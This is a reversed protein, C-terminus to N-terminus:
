PVGYILSYIFKHTYARSHTSHESKMRIFNIFFLIRYDNRMTTYWKNYTESDNMEFPRITPQKTEMDNYDPIYEKKEVNVARLMEIENM